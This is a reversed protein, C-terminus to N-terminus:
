GMSAVSRQLERIIIFLKPDEAKLALLCHLWRLTSQWSQNQETHHLSVTPIISIIEWSMTPLIISICPCFVSSSPSSAGCFHAHQLAPTNWCGATEAARQTQAGPPDARNNSSHLTLYMMVSQKGSVCKGMYFIFSITKATQSVLNVVNHIHQYSGCQLNRRRKSFNQWLDQEYLWHPTVTIAARLLWQKLCASSEVRCLVTLGAQAYLFSSDWSCEAPAAKRLYKYQKIKILFM